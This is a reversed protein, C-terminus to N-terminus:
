RFKLINTDFLTKLKNEQQVYATKEGSYVILAGTDSLASGNDTELSFQILADSSLNIHVNSHHIGSSALNDM